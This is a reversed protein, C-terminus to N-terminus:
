QLHKNTLTDKLLHVMQISQLDLTRELVMDFTSNHSNHHLNINTTIDEEVVEEEKQTSSQHSM